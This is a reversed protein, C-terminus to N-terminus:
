SSPTNQLVDWFAATLSSFFKIVKCVPIHYAAKVAECAADEVYNLAYSAVDAEM